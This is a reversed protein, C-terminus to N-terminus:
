ASKENVQEYWIPIREIEQFPEDLYEGVLTRDEVEPVVLSVAVLGPLTLRRRLSYNEGHRLFGARTLSYRMDANVLQDSTGMEVRSRVRFSLYTLPNLESQRNSCYYEYAQLGAEEAPVRPVRRNAFTLTLHSSEHM